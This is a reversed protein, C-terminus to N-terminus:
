RSAAGVPTRGIYHGNSKCQDRGAFAGSNNRFCFRGDASWWWQGSTRGRAMDGSAPGETLDYTHNANYIVTFVYQGDESQTQVYVELPPDAGAYSTSPWFTALVAAVTAIRIAAIAATSAEM